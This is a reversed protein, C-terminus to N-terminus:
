EEESHPEPPAILGIVGKAKDKPDVLDESWLGYVHTEGTKAMAAREPHQASMASFNPWSKGECRPHLCVHVTKCKGADSKVRASKYFAVAPQDAGNVRIMLQHSSDAIMRVLGSKRTPAPAAVSPRYAGPMSM